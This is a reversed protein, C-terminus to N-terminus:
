TLAPSAVAGGYLVAWSTQEPRLLVCDPTDGPPAPVKVVQNLGARRSESTPRDLFHRGGGCPRVGETREEERRRPEVALVTPDGGSGQGRGDRLAGLVVDAM